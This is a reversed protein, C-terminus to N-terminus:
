GCFSAFLLTSYCVSFTKFLTVSVFLLLVVVVGHLTAQENVSTFNQDPRASGM